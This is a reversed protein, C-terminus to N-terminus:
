SRSTCRFEPRGRRRSRWRWFLRFGQRHWRVLTDPRVVVLLTRWDTARALV